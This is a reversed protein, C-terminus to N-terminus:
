FARGPQEFAPYHYIWQGFLDSDPPYTNVFCVVRDLPYRYGDKSCGPGSCYMYSDIAM